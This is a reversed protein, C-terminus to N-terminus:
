SVKTAAWPVLHDSCKGIVFDMAKRLASGNFARVAEVLGSPEFGPQQHFRHLIGDFVVVFETTPLSREVVKDWRRDLSGRLPALEAILRARFMADMDAISTVTSARARQLYWLLYRRLRREPLRTLRSGAEARDFAELGLLLSDLYELFIERFTLEPARRHAWRGLVSLSFVDAWFDVEELAVGARGIDMYDTSQISQDFHHIEHVLLLQAIRTQDAEALTRLVDLLGDGLAVHRQLISLRFADGDGDPRFQLSRLREIMVHAGDEGLVDSFDEPVLTERLDMFSTVARNRAAQREAVDDPQTSLAPSRRRWPLELVVRYEPPQYDAVALSAHINRNVARGVLFALTAPGGVAVALGAHYPYSGPVQSVAEALEQAARAATVADLIQAEGTHLEVIGALDEGSNRIMDRLAAHPAEPMGVTSSFVVVRGTAQSAETLPVGRRGDFFPSPVANTTADLALVDWTGDKRKNLITPAESWASLEFGLHVFAPLPARGTIYLRVESPASACADRARSALAAVGEAVGDWDVPTADPGQRVIPPAGTDSYRLVFREAREHPLRSTIEELPPTPEADLILLIQTPYAM